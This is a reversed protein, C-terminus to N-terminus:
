LQENFDVILTFKGYNEDNPTLYITVRGDNDYEINCKASIYEFSNVVNMNMANATTLTMADGITSSYSEKAIRLVDIIYQTVGRIGRFSYGVELGRSPVEFTEDHINDQLETAIGNKTRVIKSFYQWNLDTIRVSWTLEPEEKGTQRITFTSAM